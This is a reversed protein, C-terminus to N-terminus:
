RTAQLAGLDGQGFHFSPQNGGPARLAQGPEDASAASLM